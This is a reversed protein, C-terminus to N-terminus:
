HAETIYSLLLVGALILAIGLGHWIGFTEGYYLVGILAIGLIGLGSWIAYVVSVPLSKLTLALTWFAIAYAVTVLLSPYLRSLGQSAKLASTGIIEAVVAILLLLYASM